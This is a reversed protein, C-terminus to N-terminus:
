GKSSASAARAKGKPAAKSTAKAKPKAKGKSTAKAKPKAKGKSTAKAKPEAKGKSTAKAKPEAKGKSTAKPKAEALVPPEADRASRAIELLKGVRETPQAGKRMWEETRPVDLVVTSPETLPDYHGLDDIRRGDRGWRREAVVVRYHPRSRRGLRALRIRLM